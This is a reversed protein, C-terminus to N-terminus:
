NSAIRRGIATLPMSGSRLRFPRRVSFAPTNVTRMQPTQRLALPSGACGQSSYIAIDFQSNAVLGTVEFSIPNGVMTFAQVTSGNATVQISAVAFAQRSTGMILSLMLLVAAASM